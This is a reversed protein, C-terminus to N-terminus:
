RGRVCFNVAELAIGVPEADEVLDDLKGQDEQWGKVRDKSVPLHDSALFAACPTQQPLAYAASEAM